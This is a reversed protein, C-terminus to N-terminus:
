EQVKAELQSPKIHIKALLFPQILATLISLFGVQTMGILNGDISTTLMASSVLAGLGNGLHQMASLLSMFAAREHPPSLKSAESTASVNRLCAMGMFMVFIVVLSTINNHMFGDATFLVFLATGIINVPMSGIRDSLRGGMQILLLSVLGGVLYLLGLGERPFGRNFQFFASINPILLFTSFMASGMMLLAMRQKKDKMLSFLETKKPSPSSFHGTMSPAFFCILIAALVGLGSITYFPFKWSGLRALELGFPVAAISSVSFAGMVVAIAKGRREPPTADTALTLAIAAAPGGFMGALVRTVILGTLGEAFTTSLTTLALGAVAFFAVHKRDFKDLFNACLLGSFAVAITYCGCIIGIDANSVPLAKSIDPGLPMVMMFDMMNIFQILAAIWVIKQEQNM